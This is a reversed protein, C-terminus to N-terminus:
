VADKRAAPASLIRTKQSPAQYAKLVRFISDAKELGLEKIAEVLKEEASKRKPMTRRKQGAENAQREAILNALKNPLRQGDVM